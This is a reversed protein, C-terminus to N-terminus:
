NPYVFENLNFLVRCLQVLAAERLERDELSVRDAQLQRIEESLFRLMAEMEDAAPPRCLALRWALDIQGPPDHGAESELRRALHRSQQLVFEGNYLTLAQTPVTTVSRKPSSRTTDCLDFVELLPVMLSRKTFAYVTRRAAAREDFAPWISAKDAHSELAERPILPYIPPGYLTRDLQGSVALISDRISEVELRQPARRWLLRNEPDAGVCEDRHDRSQQWTRSTVILEHLKRLSWDAEHVFWWALYELLEPHGPPEGTLGFDNPTRVLGDGFHWQWVRNVIVRSTLANGDTVLWRALSLRRQSTFEGSPLFQWPVEALVVPVAPAVEAAPQHANGRLLIHTAPPTAAPEDLFYGQPAAKKQEDTMGRRETLTAIPLTLETRGARPRVLPSFVAVMSYYDRQTLPDFKHDHCRACGLTLGLFAQSTTSVIDDLQDYRDAAFDAPEDDWPGLRHFGTAIMANADGDPLEDGALQELIFRNFPLDANFAAIVYDRYRWVEPKAADREYGNSDAYRVVDLWHRAMREGCAEHRILKQVLADFSSDAAARLFKQQEATTPPIGHLDLYARRLLSEKSASPNPRWGRAELRALVFRDIDNRPWVEDRVSPPVAPRLPRFAWHDRPNQAVIEDPPALAGGDIWSQLIAIERQSLAAGKPPMREEPNVASVRAILRSDRGQGPAIVPGDSSGAAILEAADLRLGAEQKVPGHCVVCRSRLLPKVERLYDASEGPASQQGAPVGLSFFLLGCVTIWPRLRVCVGPM